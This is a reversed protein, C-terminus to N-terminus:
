KTDSKEYNVLEWEGANLMSNGGERDMEDLEEQLKKRAEDENSATIVVPLGFAFYYDKKM